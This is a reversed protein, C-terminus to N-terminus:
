AIRLSIVQVLIGIVTIAISMTALGVAQNTELLPREDIHFVKLSDSANSRPWLPGLKYMKPNADIM